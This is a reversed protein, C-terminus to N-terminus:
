AVPYDGETFGKKGRNLDAQLRRLDVMRVEGVKVSPVMGIEVWNRVKDAPLHLMTAFTGIGCFDFGLEANKM